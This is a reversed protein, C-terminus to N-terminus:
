PCTVMPNWDEFMGLPNNMWIWAHLVYVGLAENLHFPQGLLHPLEDNEADWLEAPVIYEVAALQLEGNQVPAYIIAEPKLPDLETDLSDTNIYHYGMAGIGPNNFCHDLDSVLSYGAAEVAEIQRFQETASRVKALDNKGASYVVMTAIALMAISISSIIINHKM